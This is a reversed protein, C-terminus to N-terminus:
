PGLAGIPIVSVGDDRRYGLGSGVVVGLVSPEGCRSTDVRDAFRLLTRAAEDVRRTGLKIEFAGWADDSEVIADVELGTNDRYQLVRGGLAQAYVRLDRTVLSEFLFGMFNLDSLLGDPTARLAAVALSPDVFHRKPANRIRSRSRLHPAWAPQDEVIMLQELASLYEHATQEHVSPGPGELDRALTATPAYSAVNRALSRMLRLVREPDHETGSARQIDSRRIEDVYARVVIRADSADRDVLSPWGGRTILEALDEVRLGPDPSRPAEGEMLAALSIAATSHGSEFLAMPRMRMRVFRAAGTHRTADDAPVASGTLIFRGPHQSDDVARRVHNWIEPEIQWEDILRPADGELILSPDLQAARRANQDVDLRVESAALRRATETKGSAKPGEIVVAGM